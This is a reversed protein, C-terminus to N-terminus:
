FNSSSKTLTRTRVRNRTFHRWIVSKLFATRAKVQLLHNDQVPLVLFKSVLVEWDTISASFAHCKLDRRTMNACDDAIRVRVRPPYRKVDIDVNRVSWRELLVTRTIGERSNFCSKGEESCIELGSSAVLSLFPRITM